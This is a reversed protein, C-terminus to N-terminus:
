SQSINTFLSSMIQKSKMAADVWACVAGDWVTTGCDSILLSTLFLETKDGMEGSLKVLSGLVLVISSM